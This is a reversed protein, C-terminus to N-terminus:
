SKKSPNMLSKLSAQSEAELMPLCRRIFRIMETDNTHSLISRLFSTTEMESFKVLSEILSYLDRQMATIPHQMIPEILPFVKEINTFKPDNVTVQLAKLGIKVFGVNELELWRHIQDLWVGTKETALLRHCSNLLATILDNDIEPNVWNRIRETLPEIPHTPLSGLMVAAILRPEFYKNQWLADMIQLAPIPKTITLESLSISLQQIVLAPLRYEPILHSVGSLDGPKYHQDSYLEMLILVSHLFIPPEEFQTSIANIQAKLKSLEAAPM